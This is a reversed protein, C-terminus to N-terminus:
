AVAARPRTVQWALMGAAALMLSALLFSAGPVQWASGTGIAYAFISAFIAPGILSAIGQLSGNAGQLQGQESESVKRSMMSQLAPGAFGWASTVPIGIWAWVGNPALGLIVFGIVGFLLGVLLMTREGFRKVMRGTLVAQVIMYSVGYGALSLGVDRENWGYRYGTYLVFIAPLSVHALNTLFNVAALGTLEAHSRLLKLSGVPNAKRWDLAARRERPLSEPLIFFGYFANVLSLGAAVWFPLRPDYVGLVGGVAPGLVFGVGIAAGLLGFKGARQEPPTVDAIYAFSTGISAACIGSILRGAFLWWLDPALAMLIYDLGLGINSLLILPRRGFHDSLLGHVPSFLFQMLAWATSFLGFIEAARATNCSLFTEVLKPLVPIIMGLAFMDLVLTIFIFVVAARRPGTPTPQDTM